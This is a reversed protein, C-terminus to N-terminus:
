PDESTYSTTITEERRKPGNACTIVNLSAERVKHQGIRWTYPHPHVFLQCELKYGMFMSLPGFPPLHLHEVHRDHMNIPIPNQNQPDKASWPGVQIGGVNYTGMTTITLIVFTSGAEKKGQRGKAEIPTQLPCRHSKNCAWLMLEFRIIAPLM